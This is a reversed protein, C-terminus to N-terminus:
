ELNKLIEYTALEINKDIDSLALFGEIAVVEKYRKYDYLKEIAYLDFYDSIIQKQIESTCNDLLLI